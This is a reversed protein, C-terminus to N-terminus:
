IQIKQGFPRLPSLLRSSLLSHPQPTMAIRKWGVRPGYMEERLGCLSPLTDGRPGELGCRQTADQTADGTFAPVLTRVADQSGKM